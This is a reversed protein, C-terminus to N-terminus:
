FLTELQQKLMSNKTKNTQTEMVNKVYTAEKKSVGKEYKRKLFVLAMKAVTQPCINAEMEKQKM